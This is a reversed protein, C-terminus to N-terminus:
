FFPLCFVLLCVFVFCFGVLVWGGCVLGFPYNEVPCCILFQIDSVSVSNCGSTISKQKENKEECSQM